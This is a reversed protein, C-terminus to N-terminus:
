SVREFRGMDPARGTFASGVRVGTDIAPSGALLRYNHARRDVFRPNAQRGHADHGTWRRFEALSDTNGRGEVFALHDAYEATSGGPYSLNYDIVLNSPLRTGLSYSRGRVVINNEIRLGSISGAFTGSGTVYFAFTDLGDFTNNAFLSSSACRLLLGQTNNAVRGPGYAVNRTFTIHSCGASGDTGTEMVNNNDWMVNDTIRLNSAAYVEFAGGDYGSDRLHRARNGWLRNGSITVTGSTKTIVIGNGGRSSTVMHNNHHIRNGAIFTGGVAGSLEIGTDNAYIENNTIRTGSADKVKIGFSHNNRLVNNEVRVNGSTEVRIGSGWQDPAKQITLHRITASTVGQVLVVYTGGSVVVTEDSAGQVVIGSRKIVFHAYTGARVTIVGGSATANVAHQITRWPHTASGSASDSGTVAVWRDPSPPLTAAPAEPAPTTSPQPADSAPVLSATPPVVLPDTGSAAPAESTGPLAAVASAGAGAPQTGVPSAPLRIVAGLALVLVVISTVALGRVRRRHTAPGPARGAARRLAAPIPDTPVPSIVAVEVVTTWGGSM